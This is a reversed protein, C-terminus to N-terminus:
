GRWSKKAFASGLSTLLRSWDAVQVVVKWHSITRQTWNSDERSYSIDM